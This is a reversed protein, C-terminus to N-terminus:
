QGEKKFLRKYYDFTGESMIEALKTPNFKYFKKMIRLAQDSPTILGREINSIYQASNLKMAKAIDYQTLGSARREARLYGGLRKKFTKTCKM